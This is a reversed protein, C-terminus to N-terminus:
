ACGSRPKACFCKPEFKPLVSDQSTMPMRTILPSGGLMRNPKWSPTVSSPDPPGLGLAEHAEPEIEVPLTEVVLGLAHGKNLPVAQGRPDEVRRMM